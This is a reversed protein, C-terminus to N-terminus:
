EEKMEEIPTIDEIQGNRKRRFRLLRFLDTLAYVVSAAGLVIFPVTAAQFPNFLVVIGTVLIASPLVYVGAPVPIDLYLFISMSSTCSIDSSSRASSGSIMMSDSVVSSYSM